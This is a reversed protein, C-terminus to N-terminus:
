AGVSADTFNVTLPPKCATLNVGNFNATPKGLVRITRTISDFCTGIQNVLKVQYTGPASYIHSAFIGPQVTGDGFDWTAVPPTPTTTNVFNITEGVCVSDPSTFGSVINQVAVLNTKVITDSCGTSSTGILTVTFTGPTTYTHVPNAATSTGGDGFFWQYSVTGPGTTTNTFTVTLPAQCDAVNTNTFDANVGNVIEIYQIRSFVNFCGFSNTARLTVTFFGTNTYAHQPNQLTSTTGDGFDWLWGTITGSGPTSQDTFQVVFPTCGTTDNAVFAVTPKDHVTIYGTQVTTNSGSANSATLTVTYTGPNFYTAVPNQLTSTVGNGFDWLWGTPGNTSQDTFQVIIPACGSTINSTFQATPAQASATYGMVLFSVLLLM